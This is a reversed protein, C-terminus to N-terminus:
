YIYCHKLRDLFGRPESHFRVCRPNFNLVFWSVIKLKVNQQELIRVYNTIFSYNVYNKISLM